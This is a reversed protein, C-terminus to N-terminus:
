DSEPQPILLPGDQPSLNVIMKGDPVREKSAHKRWIIEAASHTRDHLEDSLERVSPLVPTFISIGFETRANNTHGTLENLVRGDVTKPRDIDTHAFMKDRFTILIFHTDQHSEPVIDESLRLPARQKFPRAYLTYIATVLPDHIPHSRPLQHQILYDCVDRVMGFAVSASEWKWFEARETFPVSKM